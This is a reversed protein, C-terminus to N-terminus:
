FNSVIVCFDFCHPCGVEFRLDSHSKEFAEGDMELLDRLHRGVSPKLVELDHLTPTSHHICM